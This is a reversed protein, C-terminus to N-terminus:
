RGEGEEVALAEARQRDAPRNVNMFLVSPDGYSAVEETPLVRVNVDDYFSIVRRDNRAIAAEIPGRCDIGYFACLPELGRRSDSGPAIVEDAQAGEALRRLLGASLFPMDCAAVLAGRRGADEAWLVATYIGGLAGLGPRADPRMELRLPRYIEPENAVLVVRDAADRMARIARVAILEGAVPELAKPKGHYRTNHGGALIVGLPSAPDAERSM